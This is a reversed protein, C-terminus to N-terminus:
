KPYINNVLWLFIINRVYYPLRVSTCHLISWCEIEKMWKQCNQRLYRHASLKPDLRRCRKFVGQNRTRGVLLSPLKVPSNTHTNTHTHLNNIYIYTFPISLPASFLLSLMTLIKWLITCSDKWSCMATMNQDFRWSQDLLNQPDLVWLFFTLANM